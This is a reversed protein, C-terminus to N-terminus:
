PLRPGMRLRLAGRRRRAPRDAAAGPRRPLRPLRLAGALLLRDAGGRRPGPRPRQPRGGPEDGLLDDGGPARGRDAAAVPGTDARDAPQLRDGPGRAGAGARPSVGITPGEPGLGPLQYCLSKGGGTPMVILSDRGELGAEVAERQGPRWASYGLETLLQDATQGPDTM